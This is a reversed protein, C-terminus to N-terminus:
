VHLSVLSGEHGLGKLFQSQSVEEIPEQHESRYTSSASSIPLGRDVLFLQDAGLASEAAGMGDSMFDHEDDPGTVARTMSAMTNMQLQKAAHVHEERITKTMLFAELNAKGNRSSWLTFCKEDLWAFVRLKMENNMLAFLTQPKPINAGNTPVEFIGMGRSEQSPRRESSRRQLFSPEREGYTPTETRSQGPSPRSIARVPGSSGPMMNTEEAEWIVVGSESLDFSGAIWRADYKTRLYKTPVRYQESVVKEVEKVFRTVVVKESLSALEDGLVRYKLAEAPTEHEQLKTGPLRCTAQITGNEPDYIGVQALVRDEDDQIRLAAVGVVRELSDGAGSLILASQGTYLEEELRAAAKEGFTFRGKRSSRVADLASLGLVIRAERFMSLVMEGWDTFPVCIDNPWDGVPPCATVLRALYSRCYEASLAKIVQHRQLATTVREVSIVMMESMTMAEVTGVHTWVTWLAAECLWQGTGVDSKVTEHVMSTAPEQTYELVGAMVLYTDFADSGALFLNDNTPLVTFDLATSCLGKLTISDLQEVARFFEYKTIHVKTLEEQLEGRLSLSLLTLANVDSPTLPRVAQMRDTVMKQIDLALRANVSKQRLFRRLVNIKRMRDQNAMMMQMMKATLTSVISGSCLIGLILCLVTFFREGTNLPNIQMSGPSMQTLSWHLATFYLYADNTETYTRDVGPLISADTWHLGTDGKLEFSDLSVWACSILHNVWLLAFVFGLTEIMSKATSSLCRDAIRIMVSTFRAMRFIGLLRLLRGAKSFRLLTFAAAYKGDSSGLTGFFLSAM